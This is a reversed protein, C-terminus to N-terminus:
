RNPRSGTPDEQGAGCGFGPDQGIRRSGSKTVEAVAAVPRLSLVVPIRGM